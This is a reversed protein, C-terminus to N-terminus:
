EMQPFIRSRRKDLFCLTYINRQNDFWLFNAAIFTEEKM